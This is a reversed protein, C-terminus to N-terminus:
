ITKIQHEKSHFQSTTSSYWPHSSHLLRYFPLRAGTWCIGAHPVNHSALVFNSVMQHDVQTGSGSDQFKYLFLLLPFGDQKYRVPIPFHPLRWEMSWLFSSAISVNQCTFAPLLFPAYPQGRWLRIMKEVFTDFTKFVSWGSSFQALFTGASSFPIHGSHLFNLRKADPPYGYEM